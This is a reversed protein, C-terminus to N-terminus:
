KVNNALFLIQKTNRHHKCTLLFSFGLLINRQCNILLYMTNIITFYYYCYGYKNAKKTTLVKMGKISLFLKLTYFYKKFSCGIFFIILLKYFICM